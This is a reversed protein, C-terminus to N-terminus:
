VKCIMEQLPTLEIIAPQRRKPLPPKLAGTVIAAPDTEALGSSIAFVFVASIRQRVRKATELAPRDEIARLVKLIKPPKLIAIPL